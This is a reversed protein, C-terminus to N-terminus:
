APVEVGKAKLAALCIALPAADASALADGDAFARDTEYIWFRPQPPEPDSVLIILGLKEM